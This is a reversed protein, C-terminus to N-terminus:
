PRRIIARAVWPPQDPYGFAPHGGAIIFYMEDPHYGYRTSHRGAREAAHARDGRGMTVPSSGPRETHRSHQHRWRDADDAEEGDIM